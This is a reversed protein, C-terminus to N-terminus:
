GRNKTMNVAMKFGQSTGETLMKRGKNAVSDVAIKALAGVAVNALGIGINKGVTKWIGWDEEKMKKFDEKYRKAQNDARWEKVEEIEDETMKYKDRAIKEVLLIEEKIDM